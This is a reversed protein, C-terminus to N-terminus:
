RTFLDGFFDGEHWSPAQEDDAVDRAIGSITRVYNAGAEWDFPLANDDSPRHYHTSLYEMMWADPQEEPDRSTLGVGMFLSPVGQQVFRYHDSRVFFGQEPAPDQGVGLDMQDAVKRVNAGLSSHEAGWALIDAFDFFFLAGDININAVIQEIPRVPNRALYDSGVLGTEEATVIAFIVSRKPPQHSMARAVELVVATGSANDVAGNYIDDGDIEDGVGDHDLHATFIIYENKLEPHSGEIVAIVNPSDIHEFHTRQKLTVELPLSFGAPTGAVAEEQVQAFTRPAGDFLLQTSAPNMIAGAVIEPAPQFPVGESKMWTMGARRVLETLRAYSIVTEFAKTYITIMGVAGNDAATRAKVAGSGYHARIEGALTSPAGQLSVVTKGQTDLGAYDDIDFKPAQIGFGVFVLAATLSSEARGANAGISFDQQAVLATSKGDRHLIMAAYEHDRRIVRLPVNQYFTGDDGAPLLGMQDFQAAVYRAAIDYGETGPFRGKLLDDALFTIHARLGDAAHDFENSEAQAGASLSLALAAAFCALRITPQKTEIM